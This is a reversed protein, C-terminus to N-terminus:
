RELWTMSQVGLPGAAPLRVGFREVEPLVAPPPGDRVIAGGQMLILRTAHALIRDLDHTIVLVTGGRAHFAVIRKLVQRSAPYDLSSFPEDFVIMDPRMALVGAVALRRKEGGSLLHPPLDRRGTLDAEALAEGVRETIEREDLRLNRPGFAIDECVTDGIIQSDADQFVLGVRERARRAGCAVSVGDVVVEGDTPELLGNLHRALLTKGSGNRGALVVFEGRRITLDVRELGLTGDLFRHTLGRVSVLPAAGGADAGM